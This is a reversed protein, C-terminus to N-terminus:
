PGAEPTPPLTPLPTPLLLSPTPAVTPETTDNASRGPLVQGVVLILVLCAILLAVVKPQLWSAGPTATRARQAPEGVTTTDVVFARARALASTATREFSSAARRPRVPTGVPAAPPEPEDTILPHRATAPPTDTFSAETFLYEGGPVNWLRPLGWAGGAVELAARGDTVALDAPDGATLAGYCPGCFIAAQKFDLDGLSITAIGLRENVASAVAALAVSDADADAAFTILRLGTHEELMGALGPADLGRGLRLRAAAGAGTADTAVLHLAHCPEEDLATRLSAPDADRLLDVVLAADRVRDALAHGLPAAAGIASGPACAVLLRIPGAVALPPRPRDALGVRVLAYDDRVAPRWPTSSGLSAWEWPLAALEPRTVSLQLQLRAGSEDAGRAVDILLQRVPPPFLAQGLAQGLAEPETPLTPLELHAEAIRGAGMAQLSHGAAGRGGVVIHFPVIPVM